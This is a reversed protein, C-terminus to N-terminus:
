SFSPPARLRISTTELYSNFSFDTISTFSHKSAHTLCFLASTSGPVISPQDIHKGHFLTCHQDIDVVTHSEHSVLESIDDASASDIVDHLTAAQHNHTTVSHQHHSGDHEHQAALHIHASSWQLSLFATILIFVLSQKFRTKIM